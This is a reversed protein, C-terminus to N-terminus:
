IAFSNKWTGLLRKTKPLAHTKASFIDLYLGWFIHLWGTSICLTSVSTVAISTKWTDYLRSLDTIPCEMKPFFTDLHSDILEIHWQL